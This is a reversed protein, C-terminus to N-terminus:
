LKDLNAYDFNAVSYKVTSPDYNRNEVHALKRLRLAFIVVVSLHLMPRDVIRRQSVRDGNQQLVQRLVDGLVSRLMFSSPTSSPQPSSASAALNNQRSSGSSYRNRNQTQTASPSLSFNQLASNGNGKQSKAYSVFKKYFPLAWNEWDKSTSRAVLAEDKAKLQRKYEANELVLPDNQSRMAENQKLAQTLTLSLDNNSNNKKPSFSHDNNNSNNSSQLNKKIRDVEEIQQSYKTLINKLEFLSSFVSDFSHPQTFSVYEKFLKEVSIFFENMKEENERKYADIKNQAAAQLSYSQMKWQSDTLLKERKIEEEKGALKALNLKNEVQMLKNKQKLQDNEAKLSEIVNELEDFKQDGEKMKDVFQEEHMRLQQNLEQLQNIKKREKKIILMLKKKTENEKEILLNYKKTAKDKVRVLLLRIKENEELVQNLKEEYNAVTEEVKSQLKSIESNMQNETNKLDEEVKDKNAQADQLQQSLKELEDEKEGLISRIKQNAREVIQDDIENDESDDLSIDRQRKKSNTSTLVAETKTMDKTSQELQKFSNFSELIASSQNGNLFEKRLAKKVSFVVKKYKELKNQATSLDLRTEELKAQLDMVYQEDSILSTENQSNINNNRNHNNKMMAMMETSGNNINQSDSEKNANNDHASSDDMDKLSMEKNAVNKSKVNQNKSNKKTDKNNEPNEMRPPETSYTTSYTYDSYIDTYSQNQIDQQNPSQSQLQRRRQANEQLKLLEKRTKQIERQLDEIDSQNTIKTDQLQKRTKSLEKAQANCQLAASRAYSELLMGAAIAQQLIIFLTKGEKTHVQDYKSIFNRLNDDLEFPDHHDIFSNFVNTPDNRVEICQQKIFSEIKNVQEAMLQTAENYSYKSLLWSAVEKTQATTSVFKYLSGITDLLLENQENNPNQDTSYNDHQYLAATLTSVVTLVRKSITLNDNNCIGLCSNKVEGHSMNELSNKISDILGEDVKETENDSLESDNLEAISRQNISRVALANNAKELQAIRDEAFALKKDFFLNLASSKQVLNILKMKINAEETLEQSQEEYQVALKDFAEIQENSSRSYYQNPKKELDVIDNTARQLRRTLQENQKQLESYSSLVKELKMQNQQNAQSLDANDSKLSEYDSRMKALEIKKNVLETNIDNIVNATQSTPSNTYQALSQNKKKIEDQLIKMQEQLLSLQEKADTLEKQMGNDQINSIKNGNDINNQNNTSESEYDFKKQLATVIYETHTIKPLDFAEIIDEKLQEANSLRESISKILDSEDIPTSISLQDAIRNVVDEDENEYDNLNKIINIDANGNDLAPHPSLVKTNNNENPTQRSLRGISQNIQHFVTSDNDNLVIKCINEFLNNLLGQMKSSQSQTMYDQNNSDIEKMLSTLDNFPQSKSLETNIKQLLTQSDQLYDSDSFM